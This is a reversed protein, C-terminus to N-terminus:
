VGRLAEVTSIKMARRAPILGALVGSVVLVGLTFVASEFPVDPNRFFQGPNAAILSGIGEVVAVGAVLGLYGAFGTLILSEMVIQLSITWPTAGVARRIGIENTRERVIVLMINSVGIVGASLTGIGVIWVLTRIGVFLGSVKNFEVESNYHGLARPDDPAIRHRDKLLALTKTEVVSAPVGPASVLAFWGVRDGFNFASQFVSFPVFITQSQEDRDGNDARTPKFTGIVRFTVGNIKLMEGLPDENKGFLVEKVRTGIVAVKRREDLDLQNLFRGGTIHIAQVRAIEPVDGMVSFAGAKTGRTVNNGGRFGGLQNRPCVAEAERIQGKVAAYDGLDFQIPRGSAMGRYPKTTRQTWLFVSNTAEESFGASVGNWLGNGSALMVMLMFIGWFVGFATLFTRMKNGRLAEYIERWHDGDFFSM